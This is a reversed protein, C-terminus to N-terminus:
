RALYTRGILKKTGLFKEENLSSEGPVEPYNGTIEFTEEAQYSRKDESSVRPKSNPSITELGEILRRNEMNLFVVTPTLFAIRSCFNKIGIINLAEEGSIGSQLYSNFEKAFCAIQENCSKCRVPYELYFEM